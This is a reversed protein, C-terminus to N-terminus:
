LTRPEFTVAIESASCQVVSGPLKRPLCEARNMRRGAAASVQSGRRVVLDLDSPDGM